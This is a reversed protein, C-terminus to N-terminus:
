QGSSHKVIYALTAKESGVGPAAALSVTWTGNDFTGYSGEAARVDVSATFGADTLKVAAAAYAAMPDDVTLLVTWTEDAGSGVTTSTFLKEDLVPVDSPWDKPMEVKDGTDVEVNGGTVEKVAKEAIETAKETVTACASLGVTVGGILLFVLSATALKRSAM